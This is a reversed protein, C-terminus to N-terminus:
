LPHAPCRAGTVRVAAGVIEAAAAARARCHAPGGTCACDGAHDAMGRRPGPGLHGQRSVAGIIAGIGAGAAGFVVAGLGYDGGSCCDYWPDSDVSGVMVLGLVAGTGAGVAAGGGARSRHATRVEVKRIHDLPVRKAYFGSPRIVMSVSDRGMLEGTLRHGETGYIRIPQGVRLIASSDQAAIRNGAALAALGLLILTRM